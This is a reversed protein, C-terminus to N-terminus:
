EEEYFAMILEGKKDDFMDSHEKPKWRQANTKECRFWKHSNPFKFKVFSVYNKSESDKNIFSVLKYKNGEIGILINLDLKNKLKFPIKDSNKGRQIIIILYRPFSNYKEYKEHNTNKLCKSCYKEVEIMNNNKYQIYEEIGPNVKNELNELDITIFCYGSSSFTQMSCNRCKYINKMLGMIKKNLYSNIQNFFKNEFYIMMEVENTEDFEESTNIFHYNFNNNLIFNNDMESHLQSILFVLILTPDIEKTKDFQSNQACIKERFNKISDLYLAMDKKTLTKLCRVFARTIPKNQIENKKIYIYFDKIDEFSYLCRIVADISTNRNYKESFIKQIQELFYKSSQRKTNDEELMNEIIDTMEESYNVNENEIPNGPVELHCLEYFTVGMSYVDANHNFNKERIVEPAAYNKSVIRTENFKLDKNKLLQLDNEDLNQEDDDENKLVAATGLDGIKINMNNDMFINGPKIDRHIIHKKHINALGQMCQLFINWLDEEPIHTKNAKNAEILNKLEGNEANEEIIYLYGDEQFRKYFKIIHQDPLAKLFVPENKSLIVGKGKGKAVVEKMAYVKNNKKSKVKYVTGFNGSGLVKLFEFDETKDGINDEENKDAHKEIALYSNGNIDKLEEFDNM